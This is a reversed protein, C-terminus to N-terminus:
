PVMAETIPYVADGTALIVYYTGGTKLPIELRLEPEYPQMDATSAEARPELALYSVSLNEAEVTEPLTVEATIIDQRQRTIVSDKAAEPGPSILRSCQVSGDELTVDVEVTPNGRSDLIERGIIDVIATM